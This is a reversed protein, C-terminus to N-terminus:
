SICVHIPITILYKPPPPYMGLRGTVGTKLGIGRAFLHCLAHDVDAHLSRGLLQYVVYVFYYVVNTEIINGLSFM